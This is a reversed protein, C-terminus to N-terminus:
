LLSFLFPSLITMFELLTPISNKSRVVGGAMKMKVASKKFWLVMGEKVM